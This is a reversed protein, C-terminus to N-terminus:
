LCKGGPICMPSQLVIAMDKGCTQDSCIDGLMHCHLCLAKIVTQSDKLFLVLYSQGQYIHM